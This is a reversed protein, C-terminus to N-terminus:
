ARNTQFILRLLAEHLAKYLFEARTGEKLTYPEGPFGGGTLAAKYAYYQEKVTAATVAKLSEGLTLMCEVSHLDNALERLLRKITREEKLGASANDYRVLFSTRVQRLTKIAEKSHEILLDKEVRVESFNREWHWRLLAALVLIIIWNLIDALRLELQFGLSGLNSAALGLALGFLFSVFAALWVKDVGVLRAFTNKLRM